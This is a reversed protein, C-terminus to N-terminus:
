LRVRALQDRDSRRTQKPAAAADRRAEHAATGVQSAPVRRRPRRALRGLGQLALGQLRQPRRRIAFVRDRGRRGRETARQRSHAATRDDQAFGVVRRRDARAGQGVVGVRGVQARETPAAARTSKRRFRTERRRRNQRIIRLRRCNKKEVCRQIADRTALGHFIELLGMAESVRTVGEFAANMVNAYMVELDKVANKFVSYDDHWHSTKVDLIEYDLSRLKDVQAEFQLQIEVLAKAIEHGRTGGFKPSQQKAGRRCFQLQGECVEILDRCRQVFADIQAFISADDFTWQHADALRIAAATKRYIRKWLVGCQISEDLSVMAGEVDGDFVDSLSIKACCRHIIENSIKRLLGTVREPNAHNYYGSLTWIMRIKALLEPLIECIEAPEAKSLAECPSVLHELFKLNDTAEVSNDEIKKVLTEFRALYSSKAAELIDVVRRVDPRRLQESIGSLDVTRSRWFQIEDLPGSVEAHYAHDQSNVVEKIQRTWGIVIAELEQVVDKNKAAVSADEENGAPLYLVTQGAAEFTTETLSAMFKHFQSMVDKKVSEPWCKQGMLQPAFVQAMITLLTAAEAGRALTGHLVCKSMTELRLKEDVRRIFYYVARNKKTASTVSTANGIEVVLSEEEDLYAILHAHRETTVFEFCREDHKEEWMGVEYGPLRIRSAIWRIMADFEAVEM